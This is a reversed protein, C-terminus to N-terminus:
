QKDYYTDRVFKYTTNADLKPYDTGPPTIFVEELGLNTATSQLITFTYKEGEDVNIVKGTVTYTMWDTTDPHVDQGIAGHGIPLTTEYASGDKNFIYYWRFQNFTGFQTTTTDQVLTNTNITYVKVHESTVLWSGLISVSPDPNKSPNNGSKSCAAFLLIASFLSLLTKNM